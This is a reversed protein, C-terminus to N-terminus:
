AAAPPAGRKEVPLREKKIFLTAVTLLGAFVVTCLFLLSIAQLFGHFLADEVEKPLGLKRINELSFGDLSGSLAAPDFGPVSQLNKTIYYPVKNNFVASTIALALVSGITQWFNTNSTVVALLEESVSAQAAMLVTQICLGVGIGAILLYGVQQGKTSGEDMTAMLGAGLTLIVGGLTLWPMYIGTISCAIGTIISFVVVGMILPITAIGAQTATDGNVVQFYLPAYFILPMFAMGITFATAFVAVAHKNRFLEFPIVPEVAYKAEVWVFAATVVVGAVLLGIVIGSDWAYQTGGGQLPILFFIVATVLLFTGPFDVRKLKAWYNGETPPSPLLFIVVLLTIAGIPGNIYFCWRWSVHDTFVGGLLPGAVSAVGFCAGIIGQYKGRESIPALDSIMIIVLSFIGGGGLGAVARAIILSVMSQAAGCWISGIEFVVISFLFVPKRGFIDALKGYSPIFATATLFYATGVWAIRDWAAFQDAIKPLAIAVITQDLAALFVALALGFVITALQLRSVKVAPEAEEVRVADAQIQTVSLRHEDLSKKPEYTEVGANSSSKRLGALVRLLFFISLAGFLCGAVLLTIGSNRAQDKCLGEDMGAKCYGMHACHGAVCFAGSLVSILSGFALFAMVIIGILRKASKAEADRQAKGHGLAPIHGGLVTMDSDSAELEKKDEIPHPSQRAGGPGGLSEMSALATDLVSEVRTPETPKPTNSTETLSDDRTPTPPKTDEATTTM